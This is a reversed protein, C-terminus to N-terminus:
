KKSTKPKQSAKKRDIKLKEKKLKVDQHDMDMDHSMQKERMDLERNKQERNATKDRYDMMMQDRQTVLKQVEVADPEGNANSDGDKFTYTNFAGKLFELDEKRDYEANMKKIDLLAEWESLQKMRNDAAAQADYEAGQQARELEEQIAEIERLKQKLEAVNISDIVELITSGKAGNQVMAQAYQKMEELKRMEEAAGTVFVGLEENMFDEPMIELLETTYADSNWLSYIGKSTAFKGLDLLGQLERERFEEFGLFIMDTIVSSQFVARENVGQGDSSLTQGKRQRSIGLVDDWQQKFHELLEILQKIQDFLSMDLVQYQNWTKDVGPQSRDILAYGLAEGYYFFKEEDWDGDDPITKKDMMLIKGKSKAITKELIYYVIIYMIQFPIGMEMVSINPSNKDSYKRGNYSLKCTSHNNMENRQIPCAQMNCFIDETIRWGEYVENVWRWEVQEGKERNIVYNEDVVDEVMQFTEMDLYSLFGIKKRGKWQVHYVPVKNSGNFAPVQAKLYDFFGAASSFHYRSELDKLNQESLVPYFRDVIDSLVLAERYVCWEGDEVYYSSYSKDYDLCMGDVERYVIKDNEIGKYSYAEGVILWDKFLRHLKKTIEEDRLVRRLFKQGKIAISDKYSSQFERKVEDPMPPDQQLQLLEEKTLQRGSEQAEQLAAQVFQQTLNQVAQKKMGEMYRNYGSEGLNSVNYVFPRRPYEGLLLDINTRLITVPRIKAPFAKHKQNKASLPDTVHRFWSKPFQSNYVDYLMKFDKRCNSQTGFNFNSRQIYYNINSKFWDEEKEKWPITQVPRIHQDTTNQPAIPINSVAM